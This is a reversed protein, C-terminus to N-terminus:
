LFVYLRNCVRKLKDLLNVPLFGLLDFSLPGVDTSDACIKLLGTSWLQNAKDYIHM